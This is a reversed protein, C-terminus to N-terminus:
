LSCRNVIRCNETLYYRKSEYKNKRRFCGPMSFAVDEDWPPSLGDLHKTEFEMFDSIDIDTDRYYESYSRYYEGALILGNKTTDFPRFSM